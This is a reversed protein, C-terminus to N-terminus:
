TTLRRLPRICAARVTLVSRLIAVHQLTNRTGWAASDNTLAREPLALRPPCVWECWNMLWLPCIYLTVYTLWMGVSGILLVWVGFGFSREHESGTVAARGPYCCEFQRTYKRYVPTLLLMCDTLMSVCIHAESAFVLFISILIAQHFFIQNTCSSHLVWATQKRKKLFFMQSNIVSFYIGPSLFPAASVSDLIGTMFGCPLVANFYGVKDTEKNPWDVHLKWAISLFNM